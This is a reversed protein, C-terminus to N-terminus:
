EASTNSSTVKSVRNLIKGELISSTKSVSRSRGHQSTLTASKHKSLHSNSLDGVRTATCTAPLPCRSKVSTCLSLPVELCGGLAWEAFDGAGLSLAVTITAM